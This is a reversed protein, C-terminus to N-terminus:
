YVVVTYATFNVEMPGQIPDVVNNTYGPDTKIAVFFNYVGTSTPTWSGTGWNTVGSICFMQQGGSGPSILTPSWANNVAVSSNTSTPASSSIQYASNSYFTFSVSDISVSYVTGYGNSDADSQAAYNAENNIDSSYDQSGSPSLTGGAFVTTSTSNSGNSANYSFYVTFYGSFDAFHNGQTNYIGYNGNHAAQAHATQYLNLGLVLAFVYMWRVLNTKM